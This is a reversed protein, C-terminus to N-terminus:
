AMDFDEESSHVTWSIMMEVKIWFTKECSWCKFEPDADETWPFASPDDMHDHQRGCHPCTVNSM